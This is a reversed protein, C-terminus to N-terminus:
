SIQSIRQVVELTQLAITDQNLEDEVLKRANQGFKQRMDPNNMLTEIADALATANRLPVLLGNVGHNVIETCGPVDTTIMPLGCAAAELLSKPLGERWSPLIAITSQRYIDAIDSRRGWCEVLDDDIWHDIDGQSASQPNGLDPEGILVIKPLTARKKLIRAAEILEEVGKAWLIRGVFTIQAIEPEKPAPHFVEADVGSGRIVELNHHLKFSLNEFLIRDDKNQVVMMISNVRAFLRFALKVFSRILRAKLSDSIFVYGLGTILNVNKRYGSMLGAISGLLSMFLSVHIIVDPKESKYLSTLIKLTKLASLPSISERALDLPIVKVGENEITQRNNKVRCAVVVEAGSKLLARALPLRHSLFSWDETVVILAKKNKM